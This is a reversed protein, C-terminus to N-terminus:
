KADRKNEYGTREGEWWLLLNTDLNPPKKQKIKLDTNQRLSSQRGEVDLLMLLPTPTNVKIQHIWFEQSGTRIICFTSNSDNKRGGVGENRKSDSM